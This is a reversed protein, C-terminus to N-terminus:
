RPIQTVKLFETIEEAIYEGAAKPSCKGPLGSAYIYKIGCNEALSRTPDEPLSALEMFVANKQMEAFERESFLASPVANAIYDFQGVAENIEDPAIALFGDLRALARQETRRAAITVACGFARLREALFRAIRGYGTILVSSGLLAGDTSQSLLACAAEATLAANKLTLSEAAFYNVLKFHNEGCLRTLAACEGGAFIVANEEAFEEIIEFSLPKDSLPAAIESGNKTLPLPLVIVDYKGEPAPFGGLGLRAADSFHEAACNMRKDGGIFLIRMILAGM